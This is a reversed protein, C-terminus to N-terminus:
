PTLPLVVIGIARLVDYVACWEAFSRAVVTDARLHAADWAAHGLWGAAVVYRGIEPGLSLAVLAFTTFLVMGATEITLASSRKFRGAAAGWLVLGMAAALIVIIPDVWDQLRLAALSGVAVVAVVWTAQRRQLAAAALYAIAVLPLAGALGDVSGGPALVAAMAIALWTPWRLLLAAVPGERRRRRLRLRPVALDGRAYEARRLLMVALMAPLMALHQIELLADVDGVTGTALLAVAALTPIAMAEAMERVAPPSHGRRRMWWVMSATMSFGMWVLLAAPADQGVETPSCGLATAVLAAPAGLVLMGAVMVLVMEAYHAAFTLRPSRGGGSTGIASTTESAPRETRTTESHRLAAHDAAGAANTVGRPPRASRNALQHVVCAAKARSVLQQRPASSRRRRPMRPLLTTAISNPM